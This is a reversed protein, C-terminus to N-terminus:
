NRMMCAVSRSDFWDDVMDALEDLDFWDGPVPYEIREELAEKLRAIDVAAREFPFDGNHRGDDLVDYVIERLTRFNSM